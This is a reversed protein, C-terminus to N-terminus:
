LQLKQYESESIAEPVGEEVGGQQIGINVIDSTYGPLSLDCMAQVILLAVILLVYAWSKKLFKIIKLM